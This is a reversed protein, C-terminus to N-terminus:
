GVNGTADANHYTEMSDLSFSLYFHFKFHATCQLQFIKQFFITEQLVSHTAMKVPNNTLFSNNQINERKTSNLCKIGKHYFYHREKYLQHTKSLQNNKTFKNKICSYEFPM